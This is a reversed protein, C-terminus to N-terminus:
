RGRAKNQEQQRGDMGASRRAKPAKTPGQTVAERPHKGNGKDATLRAHVAEKDSVSELKAALQGRREASDYAPKAAAGHVESASRGARAAGGTREGRSPAPEDTERQERREQRDAERVAREGRQQRKDAESSRETDNAGGPQLRDWAATLVQRLQETAAPERLQALEGALIADSAASRLFGKVPTFDDGLRDVARMVDERAKAGQQGQESSREDGRYSLLAAATERASELEAASTSGRGAAALERVQATRVQDASLAGILGAIGDLGAERSGVSRSVREAAQAGGQEGAREGAQEAPRQEARWTEWAQILQERGAAVAGLTDSRQYDTSWSPYDFGAERAASTPAWAEAARLKDAESLRVEPAAALATFVDGEVRQLDMGYRERVEGAIRQHAAGAQGDVDRWATALQYASAIDGAGAREWWAGQEISSLQARMAAREADLRTQSQVAEDRKDAEKVRDRREAERILEEALRGAVTVGGRIAGEFMEEVGDSEEAMAASRVQDHVRDQM